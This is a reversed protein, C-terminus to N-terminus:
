GAVFSNRWTLPTPGTVASLKPSVNAIVHHGWRQFNSETLSERSPHSPVRLKVVRRSRIVQIIRQLNTLTPGHAPDNDHMGRYTVVIDGLEEESLERVVQYAPAITGADGDTNALMAM